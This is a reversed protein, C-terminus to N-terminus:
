PCNARFACKRRDEKEQRRWRNERVERAWCGNNGHIPVRVRAPAIVLQFSEVVDDDEPFAGPVEFTRERTPSGERKRKPPQESGVLSSGTRGQFPAHPGLEPVVGRAWDAVNWFGSTEPQGAMPARPPQAPPEGGRRRQPPIGGNAAHDFQINQNEPVGQANFLVRIALSAPDRGRPHSLAPHPQLYDTSNIYVNNNIIVPNGPPRNTITHNSHPQTSGGHGSKSRRKRRITNDAAHSSGHNGSARSLRQSPINKLSVEESGSPRYRSRSKMLWAFLIHPCFLMLCVVMVALVTGISIAAIKSGSLNSASSQSSSPGGDSPVRSNLRTDAMISTKKHTKRSRVLSLNNSPEVPSLNCLVPTM